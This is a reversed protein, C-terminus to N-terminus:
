VVELQLPLSALYVFSNLLEKQDVVNDFKLFNDISDAHSLANSNCLFTNLYSLLKSLKEEEEENIM